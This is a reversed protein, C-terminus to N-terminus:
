MGYKVINHLTHFHYPNKMLILLVSYEKIFGINLHRLFSTHNINLDSIHCRKKNDVHKKQDCIFHINSNNLSFDIIIEHVFTKAM